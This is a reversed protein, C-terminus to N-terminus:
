PAACEGDLLTEAHIIADGSYQVQYSLYCDVSHPSNMKIWTTYKDENKCTYYGRLSVQEDGEVLPQATMGLIHCVETPYLLQGAVRYSNEADYQVYTHGDVRTYKRGSVNSALALTDVANILKGRVDALVAIKAERHTNTYEPIAVMALIALVVM